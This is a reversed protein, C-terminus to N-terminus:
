LNKTASIAQWASKVASLLREGQLDASTLEFQRGNEGCRGISVVLSSALPEGMRDAWEVLTLGQGEAYEDYGLDELDDVRSLRYLDFHYLPLRGQHINMLAYTPSTVATQEDVGLGYAVGQAFCTKGAGLPGNLLVILGASAAAGLCRGLARTEEESCTAVSWHQM